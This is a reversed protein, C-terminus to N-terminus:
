REAEDGGGKDEKVLEKEEDKGGSTQLSLFSCSFCNHWPFALIRQEHITSSLYISSVCMCVYMSECLLDPPGQIGRCARVLGLLMIHVAVLCICYFFTRM